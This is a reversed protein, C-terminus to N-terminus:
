GRHKKALSRRIQERHAGKKGTLKVAGFVGRMGTFPNRPEGLTEFVYRQNGAEIIVSEGKDAAERATRFSRQFETLTTNM